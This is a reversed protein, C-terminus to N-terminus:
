LRGRLREIKSKVFGDVIEPSVILRAQATTIMVDAIEEAVQEETIRGRDYQQIAAILEACEEIVMGMQCKYGWKELCQKFLKQNEESNILIDRKELTFNHRQGCIQGPASITTSTLNRGRLGNM